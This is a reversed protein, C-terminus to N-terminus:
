SRGGIEDAMTSDRNRSVSGHATTALCREQRSEGVRGHRELMIGCRRAVKSTM